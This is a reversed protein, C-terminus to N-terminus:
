GPMSEGLPALTAGPPTFVVIGADPRADPELPDVPTVAATGGGDDDVAATLAAAGAVVELTALAAAGFGALGGVILMLAFMANEGLGFLLAQEDAGVPAVHVLSAIAARLWAWATSPM